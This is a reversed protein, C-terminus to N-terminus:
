FPSTPLPRLLLMSPYLSPHAGLFICLWLWWKYYHQQLHHWFPPSPATSSKFPVPSLSEWPTIMTTDFKRSSMQLAYGASSDLMAVSRSIKWKNRQKNVGEKTIWERAWENMWENFYELLYLCFEIHFGWRHTVHHHKDRSHIDLNIRGWSVENRRKWCKRTFAPDSDLKAARTWAETVMKRASGLELGKIRRWPIAPIIVWQTGLQVSVDASRLPFSANSDGM